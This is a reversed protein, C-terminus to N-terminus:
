ESIHREHVLGESKRQLYRKYDLSRFKVFLVRREARSLNNSKMYLSNRSDVLFKAIEDISSFEKTFAGKEKMNYRPYKGIRIFTVKYILVKYM